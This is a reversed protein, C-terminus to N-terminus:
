FMIECEGQELQYVICSNNESVIWAKVWKHILATTTETCGKGATGKGKTGKGKELCRFYGGTLNNLLFYLM